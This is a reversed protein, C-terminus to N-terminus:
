VHMIDSGIDDTLPYLEETYKHAELYEQSTMYLSRSGSVPSVVAFFETAGLFVHIHGTDRYIIATLTFSPRWGIWM